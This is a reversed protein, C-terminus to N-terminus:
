KIYKDKDTIDNNVLYSCLNNKTHKKQLLQVFCNEMYVFHLSAFDM